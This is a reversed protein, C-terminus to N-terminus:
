FGCRPLKFAIFITLQWASAPHLSHDHSALKGNQNLSNDKKRLIERTIPTPRNPYEMFGLEFSEMIQQLQKSTFYKECDICHQLLLKLEYQLVGELVDHMVDPILSGSCVDFYQLTSLISENNIGYKKSKKQHLVPDSTKLTSLKECQKKHKSM